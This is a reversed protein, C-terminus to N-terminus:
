RAGAPSVSRSKADPMVLTPTVIMPDSFAAALVTLAAGRPALDMGAEAFAIRPRDAAAAIAHSPLLDRVQAILRDGLEAFYGGLVVLDPDCVNVLIGLGRALWRALDELAATARVDGQSVRNGLERAREGVDRRADRLADGPETAAEIFPRLGVVTEWCGRRGCGCTAGDVVLPMHGFEGAFGHTGRLLRGDILIGGGVGTFGNVFVMSTPASAARHDYEAVASLNAENGVLVRETRLRGGMITRLIHARVDIDHWGINPAYVVTATVDDALGPVAIGVGLVPRAVEAIFDDILAACRDLVHQASMASVDISERREAIAGADLGVAVMSIFEVNIEAGVAIAADGNISILQAPRGISGRLEGGELLLGQSLLEAVLGSVTAKPLGLDAVLQTRSCPGRYRLQRMVVSLNSRHLDARDAVMGSADTHTDVM